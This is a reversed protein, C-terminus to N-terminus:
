VTRNPVARFTWAPRKEESEARAYQQLTQNFFGLMEEVSEKTTPAPFYRVAYAKQWWSPSLEVLTDAINPKVWVDSDLREAAMALSVAFDGSRFLKALKHQDLTLMMDWDVTPIADGFAANRGGAARVHSTHLFPSLMNVTKANKTQVFEGGQYVVWAAGLGMTTWRWGTSPIQSGGFAVLLGGLVGSLRTVQRYAERGEPTAYMVHDHGSTPSGVPGGPFLLRLTPHHEVVRHKPRPVGRRTQTASSPTADPGLLFRLFKDYATAPQARDAGLRVPARSPAPRDLEADDLDLDELDLILDLDQLDSWDEFPDSGSPDPHARRPM